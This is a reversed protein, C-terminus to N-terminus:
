PAGVERTAKAPRATVEFEAAEVNSPKALAKTAERAVFSECGRKM